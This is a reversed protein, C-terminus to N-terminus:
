PRADGAAAKDPTSETVWDILQEVPRILDPELDRWDRVQALITQWATPVNARGLHTAVASKWDLGRPIEPWSELGVRQPRVAAWIDVYPHGVVLLHQRHRPDIAGVIRSEKSGAVLHDLLVGLRSDAAPAFDAVVDPLNDAGELLEVVVGEVRLDDGWVKEVLEADHRGEVFIRGARAARARHGAVAVSGSRTVQSAVPSLTVPRELRVPRGDLLWTNTWPFLRRAGTRDELTLSAKDWAVIAGCFGDYDEVVLGPEVALVPVPVPKRWGPTLADAGYDKSRYERQTV